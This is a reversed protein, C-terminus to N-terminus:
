QLAKSIAELNKRMVSFYDEGSQLEEDSLGELPNLVDVAAGTADAITNAVKPSALEEFFIVKINNENVLDIVEAMRGPNPESDPSLGDVAIQNLGYAHCMYSFAKHSVVIDRNPLDNLTNIFEDHLQDLEGSYREYNEEYYEKNDPDIQVLANKINEMEIKVNIPDLWVHPDFEGHDHDHSHGRDDHDHGHDDHEEEHDHDDDHDHGHDDHEEEHDDHEDEHYHDDENALLNIGMSAEVVVLDKNELTKLVNEVWHEMGAGNYVFLDANELNVIDAATPEWDHPEVGSPVMNYVSIKDGGIKSTFDYMPYFSAYVRLKGDEERDTDTCGTVGAIVILLVLLFSISRIKNM